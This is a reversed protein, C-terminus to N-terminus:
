SALAIGREQLKRVLERELRHAADEDSEGPDISLAAKAPGFYTPHLATEIRRRGFAQVIKFPRYGDLISRM